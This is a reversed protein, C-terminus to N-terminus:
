GCVEGRTAHHWLIDAKRDGNYDGSSILHSHPIQRAPCDAARGVKTQGAAFRPANIGEEYGRPKM